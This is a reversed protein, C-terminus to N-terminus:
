KIKGNKGVIDLKFLLAYAGTERSRLVEPTVVYGHYVNPRERRYIIIETNDLDVSVRGSESFRYSNPLNKQGDTPARSKHKNSGTHAPSEKYLCTRPDFAEDIANFWQFWKSGSDTGTGNNWNGGNSAGAANELKAAKEKEAARKAQWQGYFPSRM